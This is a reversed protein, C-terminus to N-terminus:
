QLYIFCCHMFIFASAQLMKCIVESVQTAVDGTTDGRSEVGM